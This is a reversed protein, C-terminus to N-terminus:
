NKALADIDIPGVATRLWLAIEVLTSQNPCKKKKLLVFCPGLYYVVHMGSRIM